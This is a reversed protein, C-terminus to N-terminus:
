AHREHDGEILAGGAVLGWGGIQIPPLERRASRRATSCPSPQIGIGAVLPKARKMPSPAAAPNTRNCFPPSTLTGSPVSMSTINPLSPANSGM